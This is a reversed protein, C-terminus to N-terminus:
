SPAAWRGRAVPPQEDDDNEDDDEDEPENRVIGLAAEPGSSPEAQAAHRGGRLNDVVFAAGFTLLAGLLFLMIPRTMRLGQFVEAERAPEFDQLEVRSRGSIRNTEQQRSNFTQLARSVANAVAVAGEPTTAYARIQVLRLPTGEVAPLPAADYKPEEIGVRKGAARSIEYSEARQAYLIALRELVYSTNLDATPNGVRGERFGPTTVLLKSTADYVPPTRWAIGTATPRIMSILALASTLCLGIVVIRQRRKVVNWFAILDV